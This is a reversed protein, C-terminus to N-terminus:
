DGPEVEGTPPPTVVSLPGVDLDLPVLHGHLLRALTTWLLHALCFKRPATLPATTLPAPARFPAEVAGRAVLTQVPVQERIRPSGHLSPQELTLDGLLEASYAAIVESPLGLRPVSVREAVRRHIRFLLELLDTQTRIHYQSEACRVLWGNMVM